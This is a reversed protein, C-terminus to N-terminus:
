FETMHRKRDIISKLRHAPDFAFEHGSDVLLCRIGAPTADLYDAEYSDGIYICEPPETGLIDLTHEFKWSSRLSPMISTQTSEWEIWIIQSWDPIM